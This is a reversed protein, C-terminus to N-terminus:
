RRPHKQYYARLKDFNDSYAYPILAPGKEFYIKKLDEPLANFEIEPQPRIGILNPIDGKFFNYLNPIEDIKTKRLFRGFWSVIEPNQELIKSREFPNETSVHHYDRGTPDPKMTRIKLLKFRKGNKGIREHRFIVRDIIKELM